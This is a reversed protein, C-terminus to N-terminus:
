EYRLAVMPDVRTARRAPLYSAVFATVLLLASIGAFTVADTPTVGFLLSQMLRTTASRAPSASRRRRRAALTLPKASCSRVVDRSRRRARDPRRARADTRDGRLGDRRLDRHAALLLGVVAFMAVLVTRFRPPAVSATM